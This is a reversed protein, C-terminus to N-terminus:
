QVSPDNVGDLCSVFSVHSGALAWYPMHFGNNLIFM